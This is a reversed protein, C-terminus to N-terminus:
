TDACIRSKIFTIVHLHRTVGRNNAAEKFGGVRHMSGWLSCEAVHGRMRWGRHGDISICVPKRGQAAQRISLLPNSLQSFM